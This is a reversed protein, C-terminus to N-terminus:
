RWCSSRMYFVATAIEIDTLTDSIFIAALLLVMGPIAYPCVKPEGGFDM